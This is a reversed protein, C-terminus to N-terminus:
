IDDQEVTQPMPPLDRSQGHKASTATSSLEVASDADNESDRQYGCNVETNEEDKYGREKEGILDDRQIGDRERMDREAHERQSSKRARRRRSKKLREPLESNSKRAENEAGVEDSEDVPAKENAPKRMKKRRRHRKEVPVDPEVEFNGQEPLPPGSGGGVQRFATLPIETSNNNEPLTSQSTIQEPFNFQAKKANLLSM